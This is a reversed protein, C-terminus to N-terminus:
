QFPFHTNKLRFVVPDIYTSCFLLYVLHAISCLMSTLVLVIRTPTTLIDSDKKRGCAFQQGAHVSKLLSYFDYVAWMCDRVHVVFYGSEFHVSFTFPSQISYLHINFPYHFFLSCFCFPVPQETSRVPFLFYNQRM